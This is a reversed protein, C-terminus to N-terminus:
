EKNVEPRIFDGTEPNVATGCRFPQGTTTPKELPVFLLFVAVLALLVGLVAGLRAGRSLSVVERTVTRSEM